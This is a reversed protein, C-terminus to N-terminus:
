SPQERKITLREIDERTIVGSQILEYTRQIHKKVIYGHDAPIAVFIQCMAERDSELRFDLHSLFDHLGHRQQIALSFLANAINETEIQEFTLDGIKPIPPPTLAM